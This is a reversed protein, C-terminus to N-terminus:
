ELLVTEIKDEANPTLTLNVFMVHELQPSHIVIGGLKGQVM